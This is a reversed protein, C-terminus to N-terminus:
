CVENEVAHEPSDGIEYAYLTNTSYCPEIVNGNKDVVKKKMPKYEIAIKVETEEFENIIERLQCPYSWNTGFSVYYTKGMELDPTRRESRVKVKISEPVKIRNKFEKIM